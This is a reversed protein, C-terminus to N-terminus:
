FFRATVRRPRNREQRRVRQLRASPRDGVNSTFSEEFRSSRSTDVTEADNKLYARHFMWDLLDYHHQPDIEPTDHHRNKWQMPRVPLRDIMLHITGGLQPVPYLWIARHDADEVYCVPTGQAGASAETDWGPHMIDMEAATFKDLAIEDANDTVYKAAKIALIQAGYNYRELGATVTIQTLSPTTGRDLIPQRICFEVEAQNAYSVIEHNKWLLGTDDNAWNVETVLDGPMDDAMERFDTVLELLTLPSLRDPQSAM